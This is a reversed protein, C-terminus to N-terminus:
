GTVLAEGKVKAAADAAQRANPETVLSWYQGPTPGLQGTHVFGRDDLVCGTALNVLWGQAGPQYYSWLQLLNGQQFPQLTVLDQCFGATLVLKASQVTEALYLAFVVNGDNSPDSGPYEAAIWQQVPALSLPECFVGAGPQPMGNVTAFSNGNGTNQLYQINM